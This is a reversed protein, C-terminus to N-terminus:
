NEPLTPSINLWIRPDTKKMDIGTAYLVGSITQGTFTVPNLRNLNSRKSVPLPNDPYNPGETRNTGTSGVTEKPTVVGSWVEYYAFGDGDPIKLTTDTCFHMAPINRQIKESDWIKAKFKWCGSSPYKFQHDSIKDKGWSPDELLTIVVRPWTVRKGGGPQPYKDFFGNLETKQFAVSGVLGPKAKASINSDGTVGALLGESALKDCDNAIVTHKATFAMVPIAVTKINMQGSKPDYNADAPSDMNPAGLYGSKIGDFCTLTGGNQLSVRGRVKPKTGLDNAFDHMKQMTTSFGNAGEQMSQCGTLGCFLVTAAIFIKM